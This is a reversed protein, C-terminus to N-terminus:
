KGESKPQHFRSIQSLLAPVLVRLIRRLHRWQTQNRWRILLSNIWLKLLSTLFALQSILLLFRLVWRLAWRYVVRPHFIPCHCNWLHSVISIRKREKRRLWPRSNSWKVASRQSKSQSRLVRSNIRLYRLRQKLHPSTLLRREKRSKWESSMRLRRRICAQSWRCKVWLHRTVVWCQLHSEM